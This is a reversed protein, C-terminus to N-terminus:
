NYGDDVAGDVKEGSLLSIVGAVIKRTAFTSLYFDSATSLVNGDKDVRSLSIMVRRDDIRRFEYVYNDLTGEIDLSMRMIVDKSMGEAQEEETLPDTYGIMFMMQMFSKFYAVDATDYKIATPRGGGYTADYFENFNAATLGYRELYKSFETQMAGESQSLVIQMFDYHTRDKAPTLHPIGNTDIYKDIHTIDFLYKGYIDEMMFEVELSELYEVDFQMIMRRAWFDVFDYKLFVLKEVPIKTIVDYMDSAVYRFGGEMEESVYLTFGITDYWDYESFEEDDESLDFIVRPLEFYIKYAEDDYFGYKLLNEPTLGLAVVESGFLGESKGAVETIGGLIEVVTRCTSNNLGYNSYKGTLMNTYIAEGFFPNMYEENQYKFAVTLEETVFGRINNVTVTMFDTMIEPYLTSSSVVLGIGKSCEKGILSNKVSLEEGETISKLDITASEAEGKVGDTKIYYRYMVVADETVKNLVLGKQDYIAIIEDLVMEIVVKDSTSKGYSVSFVIPTDLEGVSSASLANKADEPVHESTIDLIAHHSIPTVSLGDAKATYTVKLLKNAGVAYGPESIEGNDLVAEIALVTYEYVVSSDTPIKVTKSLESPLTFVIENGDYSGVGKGVLANILAKYSKNSAYKALDYSNLSYAINGSSDKEYMYGDGDYNEPLKTPNLPIKITSDALVTSNNVVTEGAQSHYKTTWQRYDTTLYPELYSDQELGEAVLMANILSAAGGLAYELQSGRSVYVCDRYGDEGDSVAYYYATGTVVKDGVRIRKAEVEDEENYYGITIVECSEEDLGYDAFFDERSVGEPRMIREEFYLAGVSSCLYSIKPMGYGDAEVISYLTSYDFDEETDTIGPAYLVERDSGEPTYYIRFYEKNNGDPREIRYSGNHSKIIVEVMRNEAVYPYAVAYNGAYLAEGAMLEPPTTPQPPTEGRKDVVVKIIIAAAVLLVLVASLIILLLAQKSLRKKEVHIM